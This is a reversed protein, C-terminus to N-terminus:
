MASAGLLDRAQTSVGARHVRFHKGPSKFNLEGTRDPQFNWGHHYGV